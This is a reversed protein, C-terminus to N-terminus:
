GRLSKTSSDRGSDERMGVGVKQLVWVLGFVFLNLKITLNALNALDARLCYIIIPVQCLYVSMWIASRSSLHHFFRAVLGVVFMWVLAGIRGFNMYGEAVVSFGWGSTGELGLQRRVYVNYWEAPSMQDPYLFSLVRRVDWLLTEGDMPSVVGSMIINLNKGSATFEGKLIDYLSWSSLVGDNYLLVGKMMQLAPMVVIAILFILYIKYPDYAHRNTYVYYLLIHPLVVRLILDREGSVLYAISLVSYVVVILLWRDESRSTRLAILHVAFFSFVLFVYNSMPAIEYIERKSQVSLTSLIYLSLISLVVLIYVAINEFAVAPPYVIHHHRQRRFLQALWLGVLGLQTVFMYDGLDYLLEEPYLLGFVVFTASYAVYAPMLWAIPDLIGRSKYIMGIVFAQCLFFTLSIEHSATYIILSSVVIVLSAVIDETIRRNQIGDNRLRLVKGGYSM